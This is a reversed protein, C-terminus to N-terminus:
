SSDLSFDRYYRVALFRYNGNWRDDFWSLHLYRRSDDNWLYPVNRNGRVEAVSNTHFIM